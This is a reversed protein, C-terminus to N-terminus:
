SYDVASAGMAYKRDKQKSGYHKKLKFEQEDIVQKVRDAGSYDKIKFFLFDWSVKLPILQHFQRDFGPERTGTSVDGSTFLSMNRDIWIKLGKTVDVTPIPYTRLSNYGLDYFPSATSFSNAIDTTSTGDSIENIDIPEAKKFTTSDLNLEVRKEKIAEIPLSYDQQGAKLDTTLVPFDSTYNKDDFDWEDQSQLIMIHVEDQAKNVKILRDAPLFTTTDANTNFTIESNIDDITM